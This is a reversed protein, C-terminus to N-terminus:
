NGSRPNSEQDHLLEAPKGWKGTAVESLLASDLGTKTPFPWQAQLYSKPDAASLQNGLSWDQSRNRELIPGLLQAALADRGAWAQLRLLTFSVMLSTDIQALLPDLANLDSVNVVPKEGLERVYLRLAIRRTTETAVDDSGESGSASGLANGLASSQRLLHASLHSLSPASAWPSLELLLLSDSALHEQQYTELLRGEKKAQTDLDKVILLQSDTPIGNDRLQQALDRAFSSDDDMSAQGNSVLSDLYTHHDGHRSLQRGLIGLLVKATPSRDRAHRSFEQYSVTFGTIANTLSDAEALFRSGDKFLNMHRAVLDTVPNIGIRLTDLRSTDVLLAQLTDSGRIVCLRLPRTSRPLAGTLSGTSDTQGSALVTTSDLLSWSASAIAATDEVSALLIGAAVENEVETSAVQASGCGALQFALTAALTPLIRRNKM